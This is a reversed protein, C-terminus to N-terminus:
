GFSLFRKLSVKLVGTTHFASSLMVVHSLVRTKATASDYKCKWFVQHFM